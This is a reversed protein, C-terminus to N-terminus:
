LRYDSSRSALFRFGILGYVVFFVQLLLRLILLFFVQSNHAGYFRYCRLLWLASKIKNSTLAKAHVLYVSLPKNIYLIDGSTASLNLLDRWFLYDEHVHARFRISGVLKKNVATSLMPFPNYVNIWFFVPRFPKGGRRWWLRPLAPTVRYYPSFVILPPCSVSSIKKHYEFLFDPHWQDDVDWFLIYQGQCQEIGLNRARWPGKPFIEASDLPLFTFRSDQSSFNSFVDLSSDTSYADVIVICQWSTFSQSVLSNYFSSAFAAGNRVPTIVSFFHATEHRDSIRM